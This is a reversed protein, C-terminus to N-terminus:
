KYRVRWGKHQKQRGNLIRRMSPATLDHERCFKALNKICLEEGKSTTVIYEKTSLSESIKNRTEPSVPKGYSPSNKGKVNAHNESLKRKHEETFKKGKKGKSINLAHQKSKKIGKTTESIKLKHDETLPKGYFGNDGGLRHNYTNPDNVWDFDVIKAEYLSAEERTEFFKDITKQFNHKGYKKFSLKLDCGSGMYPDKDPLIYSSHVGYYKKKNILNEIIYTYHHKTM